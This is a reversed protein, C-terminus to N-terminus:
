EGFLLSGAFWGAVPLLIMQSWGTVALVRRTEALDVRGALLRLLAFDVAAVALGVLAGILNPSM